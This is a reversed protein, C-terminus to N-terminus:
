LLHSGLTSPLGEKQSLGGCHIGRSELELDAGYKLHLYIKNWHLDLPEKTVKTLETSDIWSKKTLVQVNAVRNKLM